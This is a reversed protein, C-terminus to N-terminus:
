KVIAGAASQIPNLTTTPPPMAAGTIGNIDVGCQALKGIILSKQEQCAQTAAWAAPSSYIKDWLTLGCVVSLIMFIAILQWNNAAWDWVGGPNSKTFGEMYGEAYRAKELASVHAPTAGISQNNLVKSLAIGAAGTGEDAILMLSVKNPGNGVSGPVVEYPVEKETKGIGKYKITWKKPNLEDVYALQFKFRGAATWRIFGPLGYIGMQIWLKNVEWSYKWILMNELIFVVSIACSIVTVVDLINNFSFDM